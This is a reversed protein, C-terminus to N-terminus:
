FKLLINVKRTSTSISPASITPLRSPSDRKWMYELRALVQDLKESHSDSKGNIETLVYEQYFEMNNLKQTITENTKNTSESISNIKSCLCLSVNQSPNSVEPRTISRNKTETKSSVRTRDSEGFKQDSEENKVVIESHDTKSEATSEGVDDLTEEMLTDFVTKALEPETRDPIPWDYPLSPNELNTDLLM